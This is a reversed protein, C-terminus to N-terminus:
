IRQETKPREIEAWILCDFFRQLGKKLFQAFDLVNLGDLPKM